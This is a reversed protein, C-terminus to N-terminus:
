TYPLLDLASECVWLLSVVLDVARDRPQLEITDRLPDPIVVLHRKGMVVLDLPPRMISAIRELVTSGFSPAPNNFRILLPPRDIAYGNV